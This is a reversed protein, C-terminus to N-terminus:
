AFLQAGRVDSSVCLKFYAMELLQCLNCSPSIHVLERPEAMTAGKIQLFARTDCEQMGHRELDSLCSKLFDYAQQYKGLATMVGAIGEGHFHLHSGQAKVLTLMDICHELNTAVAVENIRGELHHQPQNEERLSDMEEIRRM